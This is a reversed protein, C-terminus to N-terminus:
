VIPSYYSELASAKHIGECQATLFSLSFCMILQPVEAACMYDLVNPSTEYYHFSIFMFNNEGRQLIKSKKGRWDTKGVLIEIKRSVDGGNMGM